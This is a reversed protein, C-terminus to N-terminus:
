HICKILASVVATTEKPGPFIDQLKNRWHQSAWSEGQFELSLCCGTLWLVAEKEPAKGKTLWAALIERRGKVWSNSLYWHGKKGHMHSHLSAVFWSLDRVPFLFDWRLATFELVDKHLNRPSILQFQKRCLPYDECTKPHEAPLIPDMRSGLFCMGDELECKREADLCHRTGPSHTPVTSERPPLM